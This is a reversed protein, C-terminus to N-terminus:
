GCSSSAVPSTSRSPRGRVVCCAARRAQSREADAALVGEAAVTRPDLGLLSAVTVLQHRDSNGVLDLVLRDTKGPYPRLGRGIMQQYLARSRTPRAEVICDVSPEDWGEALV